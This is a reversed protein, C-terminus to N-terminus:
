DAKYTVYGKDNQITVTFPTKGTPTKGKFTTAICHFSRGQEQPVAVPCVVKAHVHRQSLISQEIAAAVHPTNLNTKAPVTGSPSGSSGCASMLLACVFATLAVLASRHAGVTRSISSKPAQLHM